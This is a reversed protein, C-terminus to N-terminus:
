RYEKCTPAQDTTSSWRPNGSSVEIRAGEPWGQPLPADEPIMADRYDTLVYGCRTCLQLGDWYPGALHITM